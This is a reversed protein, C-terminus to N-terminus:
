TRATRTGHTFHKDYLKSEAVLPNKGFAKGICILATKRIGEKEVKGAIDGITGTVIKEDPWSARQVVSVPTSLPLGGELLEDVVESIMGISLFIMMTSQHQALSALTETEPVPTKGGRRTIIVTQTVEPLTLEAKLSAAAAFASTVGPVIEYAIGRQELRVIQEKIAGYLSPDGTHVRAVEVGNKINEEIIKIIQDLDLGSSDIIEANSDEFLEDSVLSGTYIICGAQDILRKGRITLLDKAGPGAGIFYVKCQSETM